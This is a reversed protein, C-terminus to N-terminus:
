GLSADYWAYWAAAWASPYDVAQRVEAEPWGFAVAGALTWRVRNGVASRAECRSIPRSAAMAMTWRATSVNIGRASAYSELSEGSAVSCAFSM